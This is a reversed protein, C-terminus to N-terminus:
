TLDPRRGRWPTAQEYAYAARLVRAEDLPRGLVQLGIPLGAVSFGCPVSVGPIGSLNGPITFIDNLYMSLPDEKEGHKFAVNPTTPAVILDVRAFAAAFERRVLTRVSQAKGYYADYYGASLAYTGLMIRRKVEAGFGAARTRSEMEVLDRGPVRLGFKVGDYRALNSSAEAPLILYYAALSHRTTPLSVREVQAGLGKLVEIAERVAREVDPDMGDIFYEDPLGLTLGAVGKTLEAMYDPVPAAISTSDRRDHGAVAGLLLAADKVDQAFPGIQDLSSALAVLGYRSVRGYTPKMGVVGCFAAPQRISGGTDSGFAGAALGGAVAAASGGSSGGPVRALDWPNRTPHFASHETSSGMAFEDMNTKGLIVAGAARLREVVTADYPPVFTELMKSGCTTRVGRTCLVDKLALPVGDLPGLPKGARWRHESERATALAQERVVTLYAGVRGDLAGIRALYAEAVATPTLEGRRYADTLEHIPQHM